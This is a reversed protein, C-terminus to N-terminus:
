NTKVSQRCLLRWDGQEKLWVELVKLQISFEQGELVGEVKLHRRVTAVDQVFQIDTYGEETIQRYKLHGSRLHQLLETKSEVMGNSHGLTLGPHLLLNLKASDYAVLASDLGSSKNMLAQEREEEEEPIARYGPIDKRIRNVLANIEDFTFNGSVTLRGGSIESQVVPAALLKGNGIIAIKKGINARTARAFKETGAENLRIEMAPQGSYDEVRASVDRFDAVSCVPASDLYLTDRFVTDIYKFSSFPVRTYLGTQLRGSKNQGSSIFSLCTCYCVLVAVVYPKNLDRISM